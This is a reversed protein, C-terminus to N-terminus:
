LVRARNPTRLFGRMIRLKEPGKPAATPPM